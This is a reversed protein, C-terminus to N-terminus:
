RKIGHPATGGPAAAWSRMEGSTSSKVTQCTASTLDDKIHSNIRLADRAGCENALRCGLRHLSSRRASKWWERPHRRNSHGGSAQLYNPRLRDTWRSRGLHGALCPPLPSLIAPRWVLGCVEAKTGADILGAGTMESFKGSRRIRESFSRKALIKVREREYDSATTDFRRV